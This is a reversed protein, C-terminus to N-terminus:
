PPRSTSCAPAAPAITTPPEQPVACSTGPEAARLVPPLAPNAETDHVDAPLQAAPTLATYALQVPLGPCCQHGGARVASRGDAASRAALRATRRGCCGAHADLPRRLLRTGRLRDLNRIVTAPVRALGNGAHAGVALQRHLARRLPASQPLRPFLHQSLLPFRAPARGLLSRRRRNRSWSASRERWGACRRAHIRPRGPPPSYRRCSTTQREGAVGEVQDDAVGASCLM